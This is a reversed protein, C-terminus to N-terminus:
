NIDSKAAWALLHKFDSETLIQIMQGKNILLEAKREKSSKDHGALREIDQDGVVLLTTRKTVGDDVQSGARAAAEAAESRSVSLEGTFVVVEGFLRGSPNGERKVPGPFAKWGSHSQNSSSSQNSIHGAYGLWEEARIGTHEIARLLILGACRADELADHAEYEIGFCRAVNALGYGSQSFEPWARRVVAASDLWMCDYAPVNARLCARELAVRDFPTHSVVVMEQLRNAVHPYVESWTPASEVDHPYIGHISINTSSFHAEPNVLSVWSEALSNNQFSAIGIQCISSLDANATEVDVVVFDM